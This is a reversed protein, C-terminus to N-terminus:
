IWIKCQHQYRHFGKVIYEGSLINDKRFKVKEGLAFDRCDEDYIYITYAYTQLLGDGFDKQNAQGAPVVDCEIYDSYTTVGKHKNGNEDVYGATETSTLLVCPLMDLVAM